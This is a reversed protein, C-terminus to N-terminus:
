VDDLVFITIQNKQHLEFSYTLTKKPLQLLKQDHTTPDGMPHKMPRSTLLSLTNTHINMQFKFRLQVFRPLPPLPPVSTSLHEQPQSRPLVYM